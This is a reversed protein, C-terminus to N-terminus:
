LIHGCGDGEKTWGADVVISHRTGEPSGSDRRRVIGVVGHLDRRTSTDEMVGPQFM